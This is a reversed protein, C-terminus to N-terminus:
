ACQDGVQQHFGLAKRTREEKSPRSFRIGQNKHFFFATNTGYSQIAIQFNRDFGMLLAVVVIVIVVAVIIGFVTLGSRVKHARLTDLAMGVNESFERGWHWRIAHGLGLGTM